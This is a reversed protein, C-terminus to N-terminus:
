SHKCTFAYLREKECVCTHKVPVHSDHWIAKMDQQTFLASKNNKSIGPHPALDLRDPQHNQEKRERKKYGLCDDGPCAFFAVKRLAM